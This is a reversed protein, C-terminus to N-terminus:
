FVFVSAGDPVENLPEPREGAQHSIYLHTEVKSWPFSSSGRSVKGSSM